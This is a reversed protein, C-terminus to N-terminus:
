GLVSSPRASPVFKRAAGSSRPVVRGVACLLPRTAVRASPSTSPARPIGHPGPLRRSHLQLDVSHTPELFESAAEPLHRPPRGPRGCRLCHQRRRSGGRCCSDAVGPYPRDLPAAQRGGPTPTGACEPSSPPCPMFGNGIPHSRRASRTMGSRSLEGPFPLCARSRPGRCGAAARRGQAREPGRHRRVHLAPVLSSHQDGGARFRPPRCRQPPIARHGLLNFVGYAIMWFLWPILFAKALSAIPRRRHENYHCDVYPSLIVFAVLGAYALAMEPIRAHFAIVGCISLIRIGEIWPDRCPRVAFEDM